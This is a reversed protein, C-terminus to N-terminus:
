QQKPPPAPDLKRRGSSAPSRGAPKPACTPFPKKGSQDAPIGTWTVDPKLFLKLFADKDKTIAARKM